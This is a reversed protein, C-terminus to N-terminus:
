FGYGTQETITRELQANIADIAMNKYLSINERNKPFAFMFISRLMIPDVRNLANYAFTNEPDIEMAKLFNEKAGSEDQMLKKTIGLYLYGYTSKPYFTIEKSFEIIAGKYNFLAAKIFGKGLCSSAPYKSIIFHKEAPQRNLKKETFSSKIKSLSKNNFATNWLREADANWLKRTVPDDINTRKINKDKKAIENNIMAYFKSIRFCTKNFDTRKDELFFLVILQGSNFGYTYSLNKDINYNHKEASKELLHLSREIRAEAKAYQKKAIYVRSLIELSKAVNVKDTDSSDVEALNLAKLALDEYNACGRIDINKIKHYIDNWESNKEVAFVNASNIILLITALIFNTFIYKKMNSKNADPYHTAKFGL